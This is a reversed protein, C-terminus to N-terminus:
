LLLTTMKFVNKIQSCKKNSKLTKQELVKNTGNTFSKTQNIVFKIAYIRDFCVESMFKVGNKKM